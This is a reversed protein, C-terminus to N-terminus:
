ALAKIFHLPGRITVIFEGTETESNQYNAAVVDQNDSISLKLSTAVGGALPRRCMDSYIGAGGDKCDKHSEDGAAAASDSAGEGRRVSTAPGGADATVVGGDAGLRQFCPTPPYVGGRCHSDSRHQAIGQQQQQSGETPLLVFRDEGGGLGGGAPTGADTGPFAVDRHGSRQHLTSGSSPILPGHTVDTQYLGSGSIKASDFVEVGGYAGCDNIGTVM